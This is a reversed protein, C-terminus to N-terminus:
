EPMISQVNGDSGSAFSKKIQKQLFNGLDELIIPKPMYDLAGMGMAKKAIGLDHMGSIMIVKVTNDIQMIEGLVEIGNMEPMMVDLLIFHPQFSKVLDLAVHGSTASKAEYGLRKIFQVLVDCLDVEDDVISVRVTDM